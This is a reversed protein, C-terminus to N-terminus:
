GLWGELLAACTSARLQKAIPRTRGRWLSTSYNQKVLFATKSVDLTATKRQSQHCSTEQKLVNVKKGRRVHSLSCFSLADRRGLGAFWRRWGLTTWTPPAASRLGSAPRWRSLGGQSPMQTLPRGPPISLPATGKLERWAGCRPELTPLIGRKLCPFSTWTQM